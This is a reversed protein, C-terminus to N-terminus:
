DRPAVSREGGPAAGSSGRGRGPVFWPVEGRSPECRPEEPLGRRDRRDRSGRLRHLLLVSRPRAEDTAVRAETLDIARAAFEQLIALLSGPRDERQFCVISTKDHGTPAPIGDGVLVFRTVNEPHDEIESALIELGAAARGLKTGISAHESRESAAVQKAAEATSNAVVLDADPLKAGLWASCQGLPNPHSM